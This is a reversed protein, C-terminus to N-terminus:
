SDRPSPSTYLLCIWADVSGNPQAMSAISVSDDLDRLRTSTSVVSRADDLVERSLPFGPVHQVGAAVDIHSDNDDGLVLEDERAVAVTPAVSVLATSPPAVTRLPVIPQTLVQRNRRREDEHTPAAAPAAARPARPPEHKQGPGSFASRVRSYLSSFAYPVQPCEDREELLGFSVISDGPQEGHPLRTRGDSEPGRM